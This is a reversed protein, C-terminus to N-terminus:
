DSGARHPGRALRWGDALARVPALSRYRVARLVARAPLSLARGLLLRLYDGRNRAMKRALQLHAAVMRAEYFPSAMGSSASGEHWVWVGPAHVLRSTNRHTWGLFADEGYMFFEEDFLPMSWREPAFLLACGSPYSFSGPLSRFTILALVRHYWIPGLVRGGHDIAPYALIAEPQASVTEHLACLGGPLVVADNNILFVWAGPHHERIWDIGRNVGAAFGLNEPSELISVRLDQAFAARLEAASQGGDGSNDWVLVHAAGDALLSQVCRRTRSADRYNLTLGVIPPNM